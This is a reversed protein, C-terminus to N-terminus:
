SKIERPVFYQEIWLDEALRMLRSDEKTKDKFGALHLAGHFIVRHLEEKFSSRFRYANDKIQDISIFIDAVLPENKPSLEFTIIDTYTDHNLYKRNIKHLYADNCFIYNITEVTRKKKKLQKLLFEKLRNRDSFHFGTSLYHFHIKPSTQKKM